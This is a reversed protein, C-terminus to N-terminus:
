GKWYFFDFLDGSVIRAPKYIAFLDIDKREKFITFDTNILSMQIESAEMLDLTRQSNLVEEQRHESEFKEYWSKLFDLSKSVLEVENRTNIEIRWKYQQIKQQTTVNSLPLIM